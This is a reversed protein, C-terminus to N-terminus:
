KVLIMKKTQTFDGSKLVYFYIGSAFNTGDFDVEYTGPALEKNVLIAAQKGLIDYVILKLLRERRNGAAPIDFRIKTIPNFPNPYNQSLSFKKPVETSIQKIGILENLPRRYVSSHTAAFIYNNLICFDSVYPVNLGENRQMWATGNDNSVYVGNSWTGAFINDANVALAMINKNNLSTQLWNAGYNASKYVGQGSDPYIYNGAYINNGSLVLSSVVINLSTQTWNAGSNTSKYLGTSSGAFVNNGNIVISSISINNLPTMTWDIGNNISKLLGADTGAFVINGNVALSYVHQNNLSTQSWNAGNNASRFVGNYLTGAFINNGYAALSIVWQNNFSTQSWSEGYNTSVFVGGVNQTSYIGAFISNSNAALSYDGSFAMGNNVLVWQSHAITTLLLFLIFNISFLNAKM